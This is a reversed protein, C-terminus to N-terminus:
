TYTPYLLPDMSGMHKLSTVLTLGALVPNQNNLLFYNINWVDAKNKWGGKKAVYFPVRCSCQMILNFGCLWLSLRMASKGGCIAPVCILINRMVKINIVDTVFPFM